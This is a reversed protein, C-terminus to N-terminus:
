NKGPMGLTAAPMEPLLRRAIHMEGSIAAHPSSSLRSGALSIFRAEPRSDSGISMRHIMPSGESNKASRNQRSSRVDNMSLRFDLIEFEDPSNDLEQLLLNWHDYEGSLQVRVSAVHHTSLDQPALPELRDISLQHTHALQSISKLIKTTIGSTEVPKPSAQQRQRIEAHLHEVEALQVPIHQLELHQAQIQQELRRCENEAPRHVFFLYALTMALLLGGTRALEFTRSDHMLDIWTKLAYLAM